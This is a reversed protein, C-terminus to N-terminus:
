DPLFDIDIKLNFALAGETVYHHGSSYFYFEEETLILFYTALVASLGTL